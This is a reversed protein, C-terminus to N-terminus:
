YEATELFTLEERQAQKKILQTWPAERVPGNFVTVLLILHNNCLNFFFVYEPLGAATYHHPNRPKWQWQRPETGPWPVSIRCAMHCPWFFFFIVMAIVSASLISPCGPLHSHTKGGRWVPRPYVGPEQQIRECNCLGGEQHRNGSGTLAQSDRWVAAKDELLSGRFLLFICDFHTHRGLAGEWIHLAGQAANNRPGSRMVRGDSSPPHLPLSMPSVSSNVWALSKSLHRAASAIM